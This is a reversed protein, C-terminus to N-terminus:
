VFLFILILIFRAFLLDRKRWRWDIIQTKPLYQLVRVQDLNLRRNELIRVWRGQVLLLVWYVLCTVWVGRFHCTKLCLRYNEHLIKRRRYKTVRLDSFIFLSSNILLNAIVKRRVFTKPGHFDKWARSESISEANSWIGPRKWKRRWGKKWIKQLLWM